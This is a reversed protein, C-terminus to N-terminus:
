IRGKCFSYMYIYIYISTRYINVLQSLNFCFIETTSMEKEERKSNKKPYPTIEEEKEKPIEDVMRESTFLEESQETYKTEVNEKKEESKGKTTIPESQKISNQEKEPKICCFLNLWKRKVQAVGEGMLKAVAETERQKIKRLQLYTAMVIAVFMNLIIVFFLLMFPVWLILAMTHNSEDMTDFDIEGIMQQFLTMSSNLIYAYDLSRIGFTLHATISYGILLTGSM